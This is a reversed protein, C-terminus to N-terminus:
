NNIGMKPYLPTPFINILGKPYLTPPSGAKLLELMGHFIWTNLFEAPWSYGGMYGLIGVGGIGWFIHVQMGGVGIGRARAWPGRSPPPPPGSSGPGPGPPIPFPPPTCTWMKQPIPPPPSGPTYPPHPCNWDWIQYTVNSNNILGIDAPFNM